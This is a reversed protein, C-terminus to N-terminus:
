YFFAMFNTLLKIFYSLNTILVMLYKSVIGSWSISDMYGQLIFKYDMKIPLFHYAWKNQKYNYFSEM